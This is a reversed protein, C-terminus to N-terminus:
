FYDMFFSIEDRIFVIFNMPHINVNYKYYFYYLKQTSAIFKEYRLNVLYDIKKNNILIKM